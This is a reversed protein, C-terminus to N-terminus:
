ATKSSIPNINVTFNEFLCNKSNLSLSNWLTVGQYKVSKQTRSLEFLPVKIKKRIRSRTNLILDNNVDDFFTMLPTPLTNNQVHHM